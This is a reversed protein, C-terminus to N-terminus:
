VRAQSARLKLASYDIERALIERLGYAGEHMGDRDIRFHLLRMVPQGLGVRSGAFTRFGLLLELEVILQGLFGRLLHFAFPAPNLLKDNLEPFGLNAPPLAQGV